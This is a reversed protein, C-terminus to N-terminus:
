CQRSVTVDGDTEDGCQRTHLVYVLAAVLVAFGALVIAIVTAGSCRGQSVARDQCPQPLAALLEVPTIDFRSGEQATSVVTRAGASGVAQHACALSLAVAHQRSLAHRTPTRGPRIPPAQLSEGRIPSAAELLRSVSAPSPARTPETTASDAPGRDNPRTTSTADHSNRLRM